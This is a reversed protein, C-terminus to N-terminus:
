AKADTQADGASEKLLKEFDEGELTEKAVLERAVEDLLKRNERLITLSVAYSQDIIEKVAEDIRVAMGESTAKQGFFSLSGELAEGDFSVPGLDSMGYSTVMKRAITTAQTFDSTGGVTKETFVVEEAARGGLSATIIERLRTETENYRDYKPPFMTFGLALGRAVISIRHVPDMHPLKAAVVAHGAEHYATIRKDEESQLRKREPGLKIKTAAEELFAASIAKKGSRAAMIAAENLTNELDAGSYGVTRRALKEVEVDKEFPKGRMHIKIIEEREKIDPLEMVVRRDFRGPRVLASDLLDPRNTAALVIVTTRADFGDMEVLIQNLTQDREDHGGMLGGGRQRGISEIEDIFILSPSNRKATAFLDRVRSAGVGVLMEMFESGAMSFFPVQAEHAVAKALMTKGVGSPGVLLVGKPIRAGLKRYKEPNKLFDVVETLEQKAEAVGAVDNFTVQSDNRSFQRVKSKGFSLVDAAGGRAQRIIFLFFVATILIPALNLVIDLWPLGQKITIGESVKAADVQNGSLTELFVEGTEKRSHFNQGDRMVIRLLDDEIEISSVKEENILTVVASIPKEEGLDPSPSVVLLFAWGLFLLMIYFFVNRKLPKPAAQDTPKPSPM